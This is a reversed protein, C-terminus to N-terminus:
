VLVRGCYLCGVLDNKISKFGGRRKEILVVGDLYEHFVAMRGEQHEQVSIMDRRIFPEANVCFVCRLVKHKDARGKQLTREPQLSHETTEANFPLHTESTMAFALCTVVM